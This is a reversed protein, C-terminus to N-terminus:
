EQENRSVEVYPGLVILSMMAIVEDIGIGYVFKRVLVNNEYEAIVSDGDYVYKVTTQGGNVTKM